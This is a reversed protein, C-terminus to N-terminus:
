AVKRQPPPDVPPKIWGAIFDSSGEAFCEREPDIPFCHSVIPLVIVLEITPIHQVADQEATRKAQAKLRKMLYCSGNCKLQPRAQNVCYNNAIFEKNLVYELYPGM